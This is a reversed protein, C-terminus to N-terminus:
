LAAKGGGKYGKRRSARHHVGSATRKKERVDQLFDREEETM